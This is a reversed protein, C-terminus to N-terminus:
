INKPVSKTFSANLEDAREPKILFKVARQALSNKYVCSTSDAM